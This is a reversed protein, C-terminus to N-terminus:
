LHSSCEPDWSRLRCPHSLKFFRDPKAKLFTGLRIHDSLRLIFPSRNMDCGEHVEAMEFVRPKRFMEFFFLSDHEVQSFLTLSPPPYLAANVSCPADAECTAAVLNSFVIELGGPM